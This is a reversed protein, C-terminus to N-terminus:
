GFVKTSTQDLLQKSSRRAGCSTTEPHDLLQRHIGPAIQHCQLHIAPPHSGPLLPFCVHVMLHTPVRDRTQERAWGAAPSSEGCCGCPSRTPRQRLHERQERSCPPGGFPTTSLVALFAELTQRSAERVSRTSPPGRRSARRAEPTPRPLPKPRPSIWSQPTDQCASPWEWANQGIGEDFHLELAHQCALLARTGWMPNPPTTRGTLPSFDLWNGACRM